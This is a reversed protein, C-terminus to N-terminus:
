GTRASRGALMSTSGWAVEPSGIVGGLAQQDFGPKLGLAHPLAYVGMVVIAPKNAPPCLSYATSGFSNRGAIAGPPARGERIERRAPKIGALVWNTALNGRTLTRVVVVLEKANGPVGAWIIPPSTNGGTCTYKAAITGNKQKARSDLAITALQARQSSGASPAALPASAGASSSTSSATATPKGSSSGCGAM